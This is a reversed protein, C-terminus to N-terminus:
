EKKRWLKTIRDAPFPLIQNWTERICDQEFYEYPMYGFGKDGWGVGWSNAFRFVREPDSYGGLIVSHGGIEEEKDPLPLYGGPAEYIGTFMDFSVQALGKTSIWDKYEEISRIRCYASTRLKKAIALTSATIIPNQYEEKPLTTDTPCLKEPCHGFYKSVRCTWLGTTGIHSGHDWKRCMAGLFRASTSFPM